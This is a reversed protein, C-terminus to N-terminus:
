NIAIIVLERLIWELMMMIKIHEKRMEAVIQVLQVM